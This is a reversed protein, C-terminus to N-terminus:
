HKRHRKLNIKKDKDSIAKTFAFILWRRNFGMQLIRPKPLFNGAFWQAAIMQTTFAQGFPARVMM